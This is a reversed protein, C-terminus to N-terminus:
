QTKSPKIGFMKKFVNNFHPQDSFGGYFAVETLSFKKHIGDIAKIMKRHQIYQKLTINTEEKFLHSLRSLSLSFQAALENFDVIDSNNLINICEMIRHDINKHSFYNNPIDNIIGNIFDDVEKIELNNAYCDNLKIKHNQFWNKPLINIERNDQLKLGLNSYPDIHIFIILDDDKTNIRFKLNPPILVSQTIENGFKKTSLELENNLSLIITYLRNYQYNTKINKGLFIGGIDGYLLRSHKKDM